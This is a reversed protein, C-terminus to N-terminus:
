PNVDDSIWKNDPTKYFFLRKEFDFIKEIAGDKYQSLSFVPRVSILKINKGDALEAAYPLVLGVEINISEIEASDFNTYFRLILIKKFENKM